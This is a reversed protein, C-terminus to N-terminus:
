PAVERLPEFDVASGAGEPYDRWAMATLDFECDARSQARAEDHAAKLRFARGEDTIERPTRIIGHRACLACEWRTRV